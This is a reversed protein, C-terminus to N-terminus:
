LVCRSPDFQLRAYVLFCFEVSCCWPPPLTISHPHKEAEPFYSNQKRDSFASPSRWTMLIVKECQHYSTNCWRKAEQIKHTHRPQSQKITSKTQIFSNLTVYVCSSLFWLPAFTKKKLCCWCILKRSCFLLQLFRTERIGQRSHQLFWSM